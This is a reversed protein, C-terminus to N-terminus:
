QKHLVHIQFKGTVDSKKHYYLKTEDPSLTPAEAFGTIAHIIHPEEFASNKDKRHSVLTEFTFGPLLRTFFLDKEDLSLCAAYVIGANNINKFIKDSDKEPIFEGRNKRAYFFYSQTPPPGDGFYTQTSYLTNGDNSIEVDMNLWGSKGLSLESHPHIDTIYGNKFKASFVTNKNFVGYDKASIFYFQGDKDLTPVGDVYSTNAAAIEGLFQFTYDDLRKAYFIDKDRPGTADNNFFLYQGDRSIFPEMTDGDYDKIVVVTDNKWSFDYTYSDLSPSKECPNNKFWLLIEDLLLDTEPLKGADGLEKVKQLRKIISSSDCGSQTRKQFLLLAESAKAKILVPNAAYTHGNIFLLLFLVIALIKDFRM